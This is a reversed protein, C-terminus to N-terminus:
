IYFSIIILCYPVFCGYIKKKSYILMVLNCHIIGINHICEIVNALQFALLHKDDWELEDFIEELYSDLSGGDAYEIVM